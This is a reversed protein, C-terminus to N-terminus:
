RRSADEILSPVRTFVRLVPEPCYDAIMSVATEKIFGGMPLSAECIKRVDAPVDGTKKVAVTSM